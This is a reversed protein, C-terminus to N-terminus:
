FKFIQPNCNFGVFFSFKLNGTASKNNSTSSMSFNNHPFSALNPSSFDCIITLIVSKHKSNLLLFILIKACFNCVKRFSFFFIAYACFIWFCVMLFSMSFIWFQDKSSYQHFVVTSLIPIQQVTQFNKRTLQHMLLSTRVLRSVHYACYYSLVKSSELTLWKKM